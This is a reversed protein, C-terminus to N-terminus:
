EGFPIEALEKMSVLVAPEIKQRVIDDSEALRIASGLLYTRAHAVAYSAFYYQYSAPKNFSLRKETRYFSSPSIHVQSSLYAYMGDFYGEDFGVLKVISRMGKVYIEQGSLLKKQREADIVKFASHGKLSERMEEMTTKWGDYQEKSGLSKWLRVKLTADHLNLIGRRLQWEEESVGDESLYHFMLTSEIINRALVGISYHDLTVEKSKGIDRQLVYLLSDAAVCMRTFVYSAMVIHGSPERGAAAKSVVIAINVAIVFRKKEKRFVERPNLEAKESVILSGSKKHAASPGDCERPM